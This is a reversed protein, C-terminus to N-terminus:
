PKNYVEDFKKSLHLVGEPNYFSCRAVKANTIELFYAVDDLILFDSEKEGEQAVYGKMEKIQADNELNNLFYNKIKDSM